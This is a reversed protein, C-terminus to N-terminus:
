APVWVQKTLPRFIQWPNATISKAEADYLQRDWFLGLYGKVPPARDAATNYAYNLWGARGQTNITNTLASVANAKGDIYTAAGSAGRFVAAITQPKNIPVPYQGYLLNFNLTLQPDSSFEVSNNEYPPNWADGITQFQRRTAGPTGTLEIVSLMTMESMSATLKPSTFYVGSQSGDSAILCKGIQGVGFQTAPGYLLASGDVLNTKISPHIAAFLGRTIPNSWDIEVPVQPQQTWVNKLGVVAPM